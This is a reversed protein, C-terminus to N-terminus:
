RTDNREECPLYIMNFERNFRFDGSKAVCDVHTPQAECNDGKETGDVLILFCPKDENTGCVPCTTDNPFHEFTRM